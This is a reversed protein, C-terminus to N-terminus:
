ESRTASASNVVQNLDPAPRPNPATTLQPAFPTASQAPQVPLPLSLDIEYGTIEATAADTFSSEDPSLFLRTTDGMVEHHDHRVSFGNRLVALEAAAASHTLLVLAAACFITSFTRAAKLKMSKM